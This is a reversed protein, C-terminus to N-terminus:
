FPQLIVQPKVVNMSEQITRMTHSYDVMSRAYYATSRAYQGSQCPEDKKISLATEKLQKQKIM